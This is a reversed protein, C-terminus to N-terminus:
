KLQMQTKDLLNFFTARVLNSTVEQVTKEINTMNEDITKTFFGLRRGNSSFSYSNKTPMGERKHKNATAFSARTAEKDSLGRLRWYRRLGEIYKSTGAGSGRSYPIRDAPVGTDIYVGYDELLMAFVLKGGTQIVEYDISQELQGTLVHGQDRLEKRIELKLQTMLLGIEEKLNPFFQDLSPTQM